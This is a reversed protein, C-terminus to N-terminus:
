ATWYFLLVSLDVLNILRDGNFDSDCRIIGPQDFYYLLISLDVIDVRGDGNLDPNTQCLASTLTPIPFPLLRDILRRFLGVSGGSTSGGTPTITIIPAACQSANFTCDTNCSLAGSSFGQSACTQNNLDVGECDESTQVVSDGCVAEVTVQLVTSDAASEGVRFLLLLLLGLVLFLLKATM